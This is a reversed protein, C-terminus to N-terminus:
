SALLDRAKQLDGPQLKAYRLTMKIDAHGLWRQVLMLDRTRAYLRTACTHRLAYPIFGEDQTLGMRERCFDWAHRIIAPSAWMFPFEGYHMSLAAANVKARVTMPVTRSVGSKTDRFTLLDDRIDPTRVARLESPRAGTDMLIEWLRAIDEGRDGPLENRTIRLLERFEEESIVRDRTNDGIRPLEVKPISALNGRRHFHTFAKSMVCVKQRITAPAYEKSRLWVVFDDLDANTISGLDKKPGFFEVCTAMNSRVTRAQGGNSWYREWVAELAADLPLGKADTRKSFPEPDLGDLLAAKVRHEFAKAEAVTAQITERYRRKNGDLTVQVDVELGNGRTRIAM